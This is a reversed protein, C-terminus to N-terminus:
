LAAFNEAFIDMAIKKLKKASSPKKPPLFLLNQEKNLINLKSDDIYTVQFGISIDEREPDQYLSDNNDTSCSFYFLLCMISEDILLITAVVKSKPNFTKTVKIVWTTHPNKHKSWILQTEHLWEEAHLKNIVAISCDEPHVQGLKVLNLLKM